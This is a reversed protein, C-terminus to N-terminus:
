LTQRGRSLEDLATVIAQWAGSTPEIMNMHGCDEVISAKQPADTRRLYAESQAPPVANDAGGHILRVPAVPSGSLEAQDWLRPADAASSGLFAAVPDDTPSSEALASLDSVASLGVAASIPADSHALNLALYGGSSHGLAVIRNADLDYHHANQTVWDSAARVDATAGPYSAFGRRYEINVTAWGLDLLATAMPDMVDRKWIERWFGGHILLAVPHPGSAIPTRLDLLADPREAYHITQPPHAKRSVLHDIANLYGLAGRGVITLECADELVSINRWAEREHINSMHVEVAPIEVASIADRISYSYHTLAGANIVIGDYRGIADGIVDVIAGEHNSQFVEISGGRATAWRRWQGELDSLTESGYVDPERTGLLQLNPGNIVLIRM